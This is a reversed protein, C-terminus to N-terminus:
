SQPRDDFPAADTTAMYALHPGSIWGRRVAFPKGLRKWWWDVIYLFSCLAGLCSAVLAVM